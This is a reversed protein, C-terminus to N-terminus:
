VGGSCIELSHCSLFVGSISSAVANSGTGSSSMVGQGTPSTVISAAAAFRASGAVRRAHTGSSIASTSSSISRGLDSTPVWDVNLQDFLAAPM